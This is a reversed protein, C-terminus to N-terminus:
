LGAPERNMAGASAPVGRLRQGRWQMNRAAHEDRARVRGGHTCVHTRVSRSKPIREGCGSGDQSTYAPNVAEGRKGAGAAKCTLLSLCQGWGADQSSNNRGAKQSAGNPLYGGEGDPKPAPRRSRNAPAIAADYVTAYTRVLALATQHHFDHRQRRVQQHQKALLKKAKKRRKSGKKRRSVRRQAKALRKEAKRSHRPNEVAEGEATVLFGKV